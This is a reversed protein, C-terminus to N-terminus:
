GSKKIWFGKINLWVFVEVLSIVSMVYSMGRFFLNANFYKRVVYRYSRLYVRHKKVVSRYTKSISVSHNHIFSINPLLAVKYKKEEIKKGLVYEEHYLFMKEDYLEAETIKHADIMFLSGAVSFVDVFSKNQLSFSNLFLPSFLKSFILEVSMVFSFVNAKKFATYQSVNGPIKMLPAVVAYASNQKLFLSLEKVVKESVAVDPNCVLIHESNYKEKLYCLGFNNGAGYGGNKGTDVVLVKDSELSKLKKLSDDTSHNDVVLIKHVCSYDNVSEVFVNTTIADNYNLVLIDIM